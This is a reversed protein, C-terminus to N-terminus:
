VGPPHFHPILVDQDYKNDLFEPYYQLTTTIRSFHFFSATFCPSIGSWQKMEPLAGQETNETKELKKKLM